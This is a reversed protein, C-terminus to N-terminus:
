DVHKWTKRHLINSMCSETIGYHIALKRANWVDTKILRRIERIDDETLKSNWHKTGRNDTGHKRKDLANARQTDWRLNDLRNNSKDGDKHCCNMGNPCRGVFAELVVRHVRRYCAVRDVRLPIFKYGNTHTGLRIVRGKHIAGHKHRSKRRRTLSRVRGLNSVEYYGEFDTVPRWEEQTDSM